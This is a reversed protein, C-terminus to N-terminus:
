KNYKKMNFVFYILIGIPMLMVGFFVCLRTVWINNKNSTCKKWIWRTAFIDGAVMHAWMASVGAKSMMSQGIGILFGDPHSGASILQNLGSPNSLMIFFWIFIPGLFFLPKDMIEITKNDYPKLLMSFWFPGIWFTSLIFSIVYIDM